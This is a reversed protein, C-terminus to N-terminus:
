DLCSDTYECQHRVCQKGQKLFLSSFLALSTLHFGFSVQYKRHKWYFILDVVACHELNWNKIDSAWCFLRSIRRATWTELVIRCLAALLVLAAASLPVFGGGLPKVTHMIGPSATKSSAPVWRARVEETLPCVPGEAKGLHQQQNETSNQSASVCGPIWHQSFLQIGTHCCFLQCKSVLSSKTTSSLGGVKLLLLHRWLFVLDNLMELLDPIAGSHMQLNGSPKIFHPTLSNGCSAPIWTMKQWVIESDGGGLWNKLIDSEGAVVEGVGLSICPYVSPFAGDWSFLWPIHWQWCGSWRVRVWQKGVWCSRFCRQGQLAM